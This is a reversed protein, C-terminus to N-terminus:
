PRIMMPPIEPEPESFEGVRELWWDCSDCFTEFLRQLALADATDPADQWLFAGGGPGPEAALVAEERLMRGPALAALRPLDAPERSLARSLLIRGADARAHVTGGDVLLDFSLAGDSAKEPYGIAELLRQVPTAM